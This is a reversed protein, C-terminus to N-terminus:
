LAASQFFPGEDWDIGLWTLASSSTETLEPQNRAADTDEIRLM